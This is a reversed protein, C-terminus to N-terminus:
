SSENNIGKGQRNPNKGMRYRYLPCDTNPCLRVEKPTTSCELCFARISKISSRILKKAM